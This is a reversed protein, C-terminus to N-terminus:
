SFLPINPDRLDAASHMVADLLRDLEFPKMVIHVRRDFVGPGVSSAWARGTMLIVPAQGALANIEDRHHPDLDVSPPAWSDTVVIARPYRLLAATLGDRSDCLTVRLGEEIFLEQVVALLDHDDEFLLIRHGAVYHVPRGVQLSVAV